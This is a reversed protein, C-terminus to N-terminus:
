PKKRCTFPQGVCILANETILQYARFGWVEAQDQYAKDLSKETWSNYQRIGINDRAGTDIDYTPYGVCNDVLVVKDRGVARLLTQIFGNYGAPKDIWRTSCLEEEPMFILEGWSREKATALLSNLVNGFIERDFDDYIKNSLRNHTGDYGKIIKREGKYLKVAHAFFEVPRLDISIKGGMGAARAMSIIQDLENFSASVQAEKYELEPYPLYFHPSNFGRTKWFEFFAKLNDKNWWPPSYNRYIGSNPRNLHGPLFM